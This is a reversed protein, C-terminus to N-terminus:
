LPACGQAPGRRRLGRHDGALWSLCGGWLHRVDRRGPVARGPARPVRRGGRVPTRFPAPRGSSRVASTTNTVGAAGGPAPGRPRPPGGGARGGPRRRGGGGRAGGGGGGVAATLAIAFGPSGPALAAAGLNAYVVTSPAAGAMTGLWFVSLRMGSLGYLYSVLGFPAVPLLRAVIVGILGRQVVWADVAAARRHATVLDRGLWRGAAFAAVAGVGVGALVVAAGVSPGFLLGAAAALVARPVLAATLVVTCALAWPLAWPGVDALSAAWTDPKPVGVAIVAAALAAVGAVLAAFRLLPSRGPVQHTDTVAGPPWPCGASVHVYM